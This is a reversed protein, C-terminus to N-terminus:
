DEYLRALEDWFGPFSKGVCDRDGIRIGPIALGAV